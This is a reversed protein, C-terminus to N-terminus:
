IPGHLRVRGLRARQGPTSARVPAPRPIARQARLAEGERPPVRLPERQQYPLALAKKQDVFQTQQVGEGILRHDRDLVHLQEIGFLLAARAKLTVFLLGSGGVYQLDDDIRRAFQLGTNSAM